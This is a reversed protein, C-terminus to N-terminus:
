SSSMGHGPPLATSGYGMPDAGHVWRRAMPLTDKWDRGAIPWAARRRTSRATPAVCRKGAPRCPQSPRGVAFNKFPAWRSSRASRGGSFTVANRDIQYSLSLCAWARWTVYGIPVWLLIVAVLLLFPATGVPILYAVLALLLDLAILLGTAILARKGDPFPTPKFIM